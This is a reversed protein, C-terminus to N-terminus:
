YLTYFPSQILANNQAITAPTSIKNSSTIGPNTVTQNPNAPIIIIKKAGKPINKFKHWVNKM